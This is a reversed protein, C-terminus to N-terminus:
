VSGPGATVTFSSHTSYVVVGGGTSRALLHLVERRCGGRHHGPRLLLLLHSMSCIIFPNFYSVSAAARTADKKLGYLARIQVGIFKLGPFRGASPTFELSAHSCKLTYLGWYYTHRFNAPM